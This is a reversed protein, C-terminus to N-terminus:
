TFFRFFEARNQKPNTEKKYMKSPKKKNSMVNHVVAKLSSSKEEAMVTTNYM